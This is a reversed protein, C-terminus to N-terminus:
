EPAVKGTVNFGVMAMVTSTCNSGVVAPAAVPVRVNVLLEVVPLVLATLRLPM